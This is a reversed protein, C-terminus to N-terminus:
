RVPRITARTEKQMSAHRNCRDSLRNEPVELAVSSLQVGLSQSQDVLNTKSINQLQFWKLVSLRTLVDNLPQYHKM